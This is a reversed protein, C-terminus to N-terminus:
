KWEIKEVPNLIARIPADKYTAVRSCYPEGFKNAIINFSGGDYKQCLRGDTDIFFQNVEVMAFTLNEPQQDKFVFNIKSMKSM